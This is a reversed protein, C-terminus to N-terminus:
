VVIKTEFKKQIEDVDHEDKDNNYDDDDDDDDQEKSIQEVDDNEFFTCM